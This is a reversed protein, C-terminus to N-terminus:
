QTFHVKKGTSKAGDGKPAEKPTEKPTEKPNEKPNAKTTEKEPCQSIRHGVKGCKFCKGTFETKTAGDESKKGSGGKKGGFDTKIAFVSSSTANITPLDALESIIRYAEFLTKPYPGGMCANNELILRRRGYKENLKELFDAAQQDDPPVSLGLSEISRIISEHKEKFETLTEDKGQKFASYMRRAKADDAAKLGTSYSTHTAKIATWLTLPDQSLELKSYEELM